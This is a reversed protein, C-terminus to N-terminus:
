TGIPMIIMRKAQKPISERISILETDNGADTAQKIKSNRPKIRHSTTTPSRLVLATTLTM